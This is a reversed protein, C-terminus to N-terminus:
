QVKTEETLDELLNKTADDSVKRFFPPKKNREYCIYINTLFLEPNIEDSFTEGTASKLTANLLKKTSPLTIEFWSNSSLSCQFEEDIFLELNQENKDPSYFVLKSNIAKDITELYYNLSGSYLDLELLQEGSQGGGATSIAGAILAGVLGGFVGAPFVASYNQVKFDLFLGDDKEILPFYRTGAKVFISSGDTFAWAQKIEKGDIKFYPTAHKIILSDSKDIKDKYDVYFKKITDPTNYFFDDFTWYIGATARDMAIFDAFSFQDLPNIMLQSIPQKATSVLNAASRKAFGDFALELCEVINKRQNRTKNSSVASRYLEVFTSDILKIFSLNMETTVLINEELLIEYLFINNVRIIIENEGNPNQPLLFSKLTASISENFIVPEKDFSSSSLTFGLYKEEGSVNIVDTVRIEPPIFEANEPKLSIVHDRAIAMGPILLLFTLATLLHNKM